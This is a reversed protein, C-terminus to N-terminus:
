RRFSTRSRRRLPSGAPSDRWSSFRCRRAPSRWRLPCRASSRSRRNRRYASRTRDRRRSARPVIRRYACRITPDCRRPDPVRRRAHRETAEIRGDADRKSQSRRDSQVPAIAFRCARWRGDLESARALIRGAVQGVCEQGIRRELLDDRLTDLDTQAVLVAVAVLTQAPVDAAEVGHIVVVNHELRGASRLRVDAIKSLTPSVSRVPM